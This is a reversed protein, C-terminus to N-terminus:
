KDEPDWDRRMTFKGGDQKIDEANERGLALAMKAMAEVAAPDPAQEDVSPEVPETAAAIFDQKTLTGNDSM